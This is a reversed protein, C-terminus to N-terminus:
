VILFELNKLRENFREAHIRAKAIRKNLMVEEKTFADRKGLFPQIFITAQKRLLLHPRTYGKDVLLLNGPNM